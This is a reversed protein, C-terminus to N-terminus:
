RSRPLLSDGDVGHLEDISLMDEPTSESMLFEDLVHIETDSLPENPNNM